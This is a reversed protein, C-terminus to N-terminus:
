PRVPRVPIGFCRDEYSLSLRHMQLNFSLCMGYQHPDFNVGSGWINITSSWYNNAWDGGHVFSYYSRYGAAPLFIFNDTYGAKNSRVEYGDVDNLTTRTWTCNDTNLLEDWDERTPMRWSGGWNVHAADDDLELVDGNDLYKNLYGRNGNNCWKYSTWEYGTSKGEKWNEIPSDQAHGEEYYPEPDGWAFYDGFEEPANAGVNVTAWKLGSPLGLDVYEPHDTNDAFSIPYITNRKTTITKGSKTVMKRSYNTGDSSLSITFGNYEKVYIAIYFTTGTADLSVPTESVLEVYNYTTGEGPYPPIASTKDETYTQYDGSVPSDSEVKISKLTSISKNTVNIALVSCINKFQLDTNDSSAHMPMNFKGPTYVQTTPILGYSAAGQFISTPFYADYSHYDGTELEGATPSFTTTTGSADAQYTATTYEHGYHIDVIVIEDGADWSPTKGDLTARTAGDEMTATFVLPQKSNNENVIPDNDSSCSSLAAIAAVAMFTYNKM